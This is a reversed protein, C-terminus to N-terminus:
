QGRVQHGCMICFYIPLEGYMDPVRQGCQPCYNALITEESPPRMSAMEARETELMQRRVWDAVDPTFAGDEIAEQLSPMDHTSDSPEVVFGEGEILANFAEQTMTNLDQFASIYADRTTDLTWGPSLNWELFYHPLQAGREGANTVIFDCAGFQYGFIDMLKAVDVRLRDHLPDTPENITVFHGGTHHNWTLQEDGDPHVRKQFIWTNPDTWKFAHVRMEYRRNMIREQFYVNNQTHQGTYPVIGRGGLSYYPKVIWSGDIPVQWVTRNSAPAPVGNERAQIICDFKNGYQIHNLIPLRTISPNRAVYDSCGVVRCVGISLVMLM